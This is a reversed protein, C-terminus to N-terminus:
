SQRRPSPKRTAAAEAITAEVLSRAIWAVLELAQDEALEAADATWVVMDSGFLPTLALALRRRQDDSVSDPLYRLLSAEIWERRRMKGQRFTGAAQSNPALSTALLARLERVHDFAWEGRARVLHEARDAATLDVPEDLQGHTEAADDSAAADDLAPMAAWLTVADNNVFYRYATARSVGAREAVAAVTMEGGEHLQAQAARALLAATRDRASPRPLRPNVVESVVAM